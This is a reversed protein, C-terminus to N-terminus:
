SNATMSSIAYKSTEQVHAEESHCSAAIPASPDVPLSVPTQTLLITGIMTLQLTSKSTAM